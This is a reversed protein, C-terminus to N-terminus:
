FVIATDFAAEYRYMEQSEVTRKQRQELPLKIELGSSVLAETQKNLDCLNM